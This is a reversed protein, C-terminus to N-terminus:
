FGSGLRDVLREIFDDVADKGAATSSENDTQYSVNTQVQGSNWVRQSSASEFIQAEGAIRIESKVTDGDSSQRLGSDSYSTVKLRILGQAADRSVWTIQGRRALEDRLSRRLYPEMWSETSPQSVSDLALRTMGQPLAVPAASSLHYSCGALLMLVALLLTFAYEPRSWM